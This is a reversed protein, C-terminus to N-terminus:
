RDFGDFIKDDGDDDGDDNDDDGGDDIHNGITNGVVIELKGRIWLVPEITM